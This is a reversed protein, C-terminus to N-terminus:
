QGSNGLLLIAAATQPKMAEIIKGAKKKNMLKLIQAADREDLQELIKAVDAPNSNNYIKAFDEFSKKEGVDQKKNIFSEQEKIRNEALKLKEESLKYQNVLKKISDELYTKKGKTDGLSRQVKSISDLFFAIRTKYFNMSDLLMKNKKWASDKEAILFDKQAADRNLESLRKETVQVMPDLYVSDRAKKQKQNFEIEDKKESEFGMWAPKFKISLGVIAALLSIGLSTALIIGIIRRDM